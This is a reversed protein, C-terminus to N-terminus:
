VFDQFPRLVFFRIQKHRDTIRGVAYFDWVDRLFVQFINHTDDFLRECVAVYCGGNMVPAKM